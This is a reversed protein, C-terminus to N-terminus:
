IPTSVCWLAPFLAMVGLLWIRMARLVYPWNSNNLRIGALNIRFVGDSYFSIRNQDYFDPLREKIGFCLWIGFLLCLGEMLLVPSALEAWTYGLVLLAATEVLGALACLIYAVRLRRRHVASAAETQSTLQLASGVLAEVEEVPLTERTDRQGQLLEAVSVGLCEALPLLLSVDPLSLGREWKSVAKDSIFLKEALEKQTLGLERRLSALFAGFRARDIVYM